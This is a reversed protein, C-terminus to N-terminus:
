ILENEYKLLMKEGGQKDVYNISAGMESAVIYIYNSFFELVVVQHMEAVKQDLQKIIM